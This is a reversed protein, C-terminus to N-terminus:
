KMIVLDKIFKSYGSTKDLSEVLSINLSMYKLTTIFKTLKGYSEKSGENFLLLPDLFISQFYNTMVRKRKDELM